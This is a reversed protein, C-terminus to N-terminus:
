LIEFSVAVLGGSLTNSFLIGNEYKILPVSGERPQPEKVPTVDLSSYVSEDDGISSEADDDDTTTQQHILVSSQSRSSAHSAPSNRFDDM